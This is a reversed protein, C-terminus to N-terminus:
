TYPCNEKKHPKDCDGRGKFGCYEGAAWLRSSKSDHDPRALEGHPKFALSPTSTRAYRTAAQLRSERPRIRRRTRVRQALGGSGAVTIPSATKRAALSLPRGLADQHDEALAPGLLSRRQELAGADRAPRLPHDPCWRPARTRAAPAPEVRDRYGPGHRPPRHADPCTKPPKCTGACTMSTESYCTWRQASPLILASPRTGLSSACGKPPEM